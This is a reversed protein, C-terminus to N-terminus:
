APISIQTLSIRTITGTTGQITVAGAATVTLDVASTPSGGGVRFELDAAPWWSSPLQVVITGATLTGPALSGILQVAGTTALRRGRPLAWTGGAPTWDTPLVLDTWPTLAVVAGARGAAELRQLRGTLTRLARALGSGDDALHDAPTPM